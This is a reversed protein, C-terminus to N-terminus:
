AFEHNFLYIMGGYFGTFIAPYGMFCFLWMYGQLFFRGIAVWLFAGIILNVLIRVGLYLRNKLYISTNLENVKNWIINM